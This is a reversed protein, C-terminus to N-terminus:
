GPAVGAPVAGSGGIIADLAEAPCPRAFWYGQALDCGLARLRAVQDPHEVGEAVLVLGLTQGLKVIARALASDADSRAVDDVFTKDIKLVDFPLRRLYALSSYGTGFDDVALTIGLAKLAHLRGLVARGNVMVDETIELTLREPRLRSTALADAVVEVIDEAFLQTPSLNVSMGLGHGPHRDTWSRMQRCAEHLAWTGIGVIAGTGEALALFEGPALLGRTPHRWRLLAEVGSPLGSGLAYIPQYHLVFEGDDVARRLAEEAEVRRVVEVQMDPQFFAYRGRGAHKATYM